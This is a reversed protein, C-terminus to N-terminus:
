LQSHTLIKQNLGRKCSKVSPLTSQISTTIDRRLNEDYLLDSVMKAVRGKYIDSHSFVINESNANWVFIGDPNPANTDASKEVAIIRGSDSVCLTDYSSIGCAGVACSYSDSNFLSALRFLVRNPTDNISHANFLYSQTNETFRTLVDAGTYGQIERAASIADSIWEFREEPMAANLLVVNLLEASTLFEVLRGIESSSKDNNLAELAGVVMRGGFSHGILHIRPAITDGARAIGSKKRISEGLTDFFASLGEEAISDARSRINYYSIPKLLYPEKPRNTITSPWFVGVILLGDKRKSEGIVLDIENHLRCIFRRYDIEASEPSKNWGHTFVILDTIDAEQSAIRKQIESLQNPYKYQGGKDFEIAKFFKPTNVGRECPMLDIDLSTYQPQSKCGAVFLISLSFIGVLITRVFMRIVM